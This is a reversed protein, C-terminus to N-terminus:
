SSYFEIFRAKVLAFQEGDLTGIRRVLRKKDFTRVQHLMALRKKGLLTTEVYWSGKKEQTTLALALFSNGSNKRFILIPRLLELGKGFVEEGVNLGVRCWWIEGAKFLASSEQAQTRRKVQSWWDLDTSLISVISSFQEPMPAIM